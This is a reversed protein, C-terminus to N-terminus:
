GIHGIVEYLDDINDTYRPFVESKLCFNGFGDINIAAWVVFFIANKPRGCKAWADKATFAKCWLSESFCLVVFGSRNAAIKAHHPKIEALDAIKLKPGNNTKPLEFTNM